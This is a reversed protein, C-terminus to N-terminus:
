MIDMEKTLLKKNTVNEIPAFFLYEGILDVYLYGNRELVLKINEIVIPKILDLNNKGSLYYNMIIFTKHQQTLTNTEQGYYLKKDFNNIYEQIESKDALEILQKNIIVM